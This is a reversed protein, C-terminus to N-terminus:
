KPFARSPVILVEYVEKEKREKRAIFYLSGEGCLLVM